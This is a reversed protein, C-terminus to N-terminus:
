ISRRSSKIGPRRDADGVLPAGLGQGHVAPGSYHQLRFGAMEEQRCCFRQREVLMKKIM